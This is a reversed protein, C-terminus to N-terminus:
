PLQEAHMLSSTLLDFTLLMRNYFVCADPRTTPQHAPQLQVVADAMVQFTTVVVDLRPVLRRRGLVAVVQRQQRRPDVAPLDCVVLSQKIPRGISARGVDLLREVSAVAHGFQLAVVGFYCGDDSFCVLSQCCECRM